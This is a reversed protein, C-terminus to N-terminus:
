ECIIMSNPSDPSSCHQCCLEDLLALQSAHLRSSATTSCAPGAEFPQGRASVRGRSTRAPQLAAEETSKIGHCGSSLSVVTAM